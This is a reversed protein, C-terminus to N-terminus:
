LEKSWERFPTLYKTEGHTSYGPIPTILTRKKENLLITFIRFASPNQLKKTYKFFVDIDEKLIKVQTAFTMCTSNTYKWHTSNTMFVKTIEEGNIIFPNDSPCMYKDRHDYLSVYDNRALGELLIKRSNKIHLYDDEVFYVYCNDKNEDIAKQLTFALGNGNGLNIRTIQDKNFYRNLKQYTSEVVNDAIIEMNNKDFHKLFNNLCNEWNIYPPKCKHNGKDSIRYYIKLKM